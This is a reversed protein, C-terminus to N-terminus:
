YGVKACVDLSGYGCQGGFEVSVGQRKEYGLCWIRM